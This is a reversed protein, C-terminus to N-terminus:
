ETGGPIRTPTPVQHRPGQGPRRLLGELTEGPVWELVVFPRDASHPFVGADLSRQVHPNPLGRPRLEGRHFASARRAERQADTTTKYVKIGIERICARQAQDAYRCSLVPDVRIVTAAFRGPPSAAGWTAQRSTAELDLLDAVLNEVGLRALGDMPHQKAHFWDFHDYSRWDIPM